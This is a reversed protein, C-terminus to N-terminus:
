AEEHTVLGFKKYISIKWEAAINSLFVKPLFNKKGINCCFAGRRYM